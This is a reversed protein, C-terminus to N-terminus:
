NETCLHNENVSKLGTIFNTGNDHVRYTLLLVQRDTKYVSILDIFANTNSKHISLLGLVASTGNKNVSAGNEQSTVHFNKNSRNETTVNFIDISYLHM